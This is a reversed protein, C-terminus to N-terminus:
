FVDFDYTLLREIFCEKQIVHQITEDLSPYLSLSHSLNLPTVWFPQDPLPSSAKLATWTELFEKTTKRHFIDNWDQHWRLNTQDWLPTRPIAKFTFEWLILLESVEDWLVSLSEALPHLNFDDGHAERGGKLRLAKEGELGWLEGRMLFSLNFFSKPSLKKSTQM